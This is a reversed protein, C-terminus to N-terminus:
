HYMFITYSYRIHCILRFLINVDFLRRYYTRIERCIERTFIQPGGLIIHIQRPLHIFEYTTFLQSSEGRSNIPYHFNNIQFVGIM